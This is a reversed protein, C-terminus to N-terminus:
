AGKSDSFLYLTDRCLVPSLHLGGIAAELYINWACLLSMKYVGLDGSSVPPVFIDKYNSNKSFYETFMRIYSNVDSLFLDNVCVPSNFQLTIYSNLRKQSENVQVAHVSIHTVREFIIKGIVKLLFFFPILKWSFM